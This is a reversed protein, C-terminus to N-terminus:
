LSGIIQTRPGKPKLTNPDGGTGLLCWYAFGLGQVSCAELLSRPVKPPVRIPVRLGMVM